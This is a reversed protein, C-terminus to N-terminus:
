GGAIDARMPPAFRDFGEIVHLGQLACSDPEVIAYASLQVSAGARQATLRLQVERADPRGDFPAQVNLREFRTSGKAFSDPLGRDIRDVASMLWSEDRAQCFGRLDEAWRPAAAAEPAPDSCSMLVLLLPAIAKKM